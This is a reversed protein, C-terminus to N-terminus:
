PQRPPADPENPPTAPDAPQRPSEAHGPHAPTSDPDTPTPESPQEQQESLSLWKPVDLAGFATWIISGGVGLCIFFVIQTTFSLVRFSSEELQKEAEPLVALLAFGGGLVLFGLLIVVGIAVGPASRPRYIEAEANLRDNLAGWGSQEKDFADRMSQLEQFWQISRKSRKKFIKQFVGKLYGGLALAAAGVIPAIVNVLIPNEWMFSTDASRLM